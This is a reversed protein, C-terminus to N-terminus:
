QCVLFVIHVHVISAFAPHPKSMSRGRARGPGCTVSCLVSLKPFCSPDNPLSSPPSPPSPPLSRVQPQHHHHLRTAASQPGVWQQAAQARQSTPPAAAWGPQQGGGGVFQQYGAQPAAQVAVM